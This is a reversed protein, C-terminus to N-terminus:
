LFPTKQFGRAKIIKEISDVPNTFHSMGLFSQVFKNDIKMKDKADPSFLSPQGTDVIEIKPDVKHNTYKLISSKVLNALELVTIPVPYYINVIHNLSNSKTETEGKFIKEAYIGFALCVDDIDVYLMPRYMSQLYPTIPGGKIGQTIFINAATKEPMGEGLVTGLRIIGYIKSSIEDYFRTIVEQGIKSLTYLRARNEVKDPRFGFEENILGFLDREGITHWSSALIMGKIQAIEDVARCVHQTGILNVEYGLRKNEAILPIQIIATHIVLDVDKLSKKLEEFDRIDCKAYEVSGKLHNPPPQLDIVKVEYNQLLYKALSSGIFGAGGTIGIKNKM